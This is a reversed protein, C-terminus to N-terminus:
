PPTKRGSTTGQAAKKVMEAQAKTMDKKVAESKEPSSPPASPGCGAVSLALSIILMSLLSFLKM